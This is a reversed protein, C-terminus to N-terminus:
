RPRPRARRRRAACAFPVSMAAVNLGVAPPAATVRAACRSPPGGGRRDAEGVAAAVRVDGVVRALRPADRDLDVDVVPLAGVHDPQRQRAEEHPRDLVEVLERLRAGLPPPPPRTRRRAGRPAAPWGPRARRPGAPTTRSTRRCRSGCTGSSPHPRPPAGRASAAPAPPRPRPGRRRPPWPGRARSGGPPSRTARRRANRRDTASPSSPSGITSGVASHGASRSRTSTARSSSSRRSVPRSCDASSTRTNSGVRTTSPISVVSSGIRRNRGRVRHRHLAARAAYDNLRRSEPRRRYCGKPAVQRRLLKKEGGGGWFARGIGECRRELGLRRRARRRGRRTGDPRVLLAGGPRIGLARATLEDLRRVTVPPATRAPRGAARHVPHPRPRPTSRRVGREVWVHPLRGGLDRAARRRPATAGDPDASRAANHAAVPRREAEYSDLLADGAWGRLVWALKWGLDHGDHIATNM